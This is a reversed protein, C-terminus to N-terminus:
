YASEDRMKTPVLLWAADWALDLQRHRESDITATDWTLYKKTDRFRATWISDINQAGETPPGEQSFLIKALLPAATWENQNQNNLNDKVWGSADEIDSKVINIAQDSDAVVEAHLGPDQPAPNSSSAAAGTVHSDRQTKQHETVLHLRPTIRSLPLTSLAEGEPQQGPRPSSLPTLEDRPSMCPDQTLLPQSLSAIRLEDLQSRMNTLNNHIEEHTDQLLIRLAQVSLSLNHVTQVVTRYMESNSVMGTQIQEQKERLGSADTQLKQVTERLLLLESNRHANVSNDLSGSEAAHEPLLQVLSQVTETEPPATRDSAPPDERWLEKDMEPIAEYTDQM